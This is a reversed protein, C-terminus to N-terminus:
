LILINKTTELRGQLRPQKQDSNLASVNAKLLPSYVMPRAKSRLHLLARADSHHAWSCSCISLMPRAAWAGAVSMRGERWYFPLDVLLHSSLDQHLYVLTCPPTKWSSAPCATSWNRSCLSAERSCLVILCGNSPLLRYLWHPAWLAM